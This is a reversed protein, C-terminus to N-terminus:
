DDDKDEAPSLQSLRIAVTTGLGPTSDVLLTGNILAAREQM